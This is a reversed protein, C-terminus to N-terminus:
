VEIVVNWVIRPEEDLDVALFEDCFDESVVEFRDVLKGANDLLSLGSCEDDPASRHTPRWNRHM